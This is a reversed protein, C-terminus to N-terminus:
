NGPESSDPKEMPFDASDAAQPKITKEWLKAYKHFVYVAEEISVVFGATGMRIAGMYFYVRLFRAFPRFIIDMIGARDGAVFKEQAKLSSYRNRTDTQKEISRNHLHILPATLRKVSGDVELYEHVLAGKWRSHAARSLRKRARRSTEHPWFRGLQYNLRPVKYGFVQKDDEIMLQEIAARLAQSVREDADISLAWETKVHSLALQKQEPFGPWKNSIVRAGLSSAIEVTDDKSFADVVIIDDCWHVSNLCDRINASEDFTIIYATISSM